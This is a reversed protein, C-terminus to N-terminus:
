SQASGALQPRFGIKPVLYLTAATWALATLMSAFCCAKLAFPAVFELQVRSEGAPVAVMALGEPSERVDSPRGNVLARYWVQYMRPTELWGPQGSQVRARYPIWSDVKVPLKGPDFEALRIRAFPLLNDARPRHDSPFFRVTIKLPVPGSTWLSLRRSHRGGIGFSASEGSGPLLYERFFGDGTFQLIGNPVGPGRFEFEALYRRGPLLTLPSRSVLAAGAYSLNDVEFEVAAPAGRARGSSERDLEITDGNAVVVAGTSPSLIRNELAPDAVGHTFYAPLKPFVVYSYRSLALNELRLMTEASEPPRLHHASGAAFKSAEVMSWACAGALLLIAWRRAGARRAILDELAVATGFLLAMALLLYLRSMPWTGTTNRVIGPIASWRAFALGPIPALLLAVVAAAVVLIRFEAAKTRRWSWLCFGLLAWLAYGLQFDSLERGLASLPLLVAPFVERLFHVVIDPSSSQFTASGVGAAPPFFLVSVIPYAAILGFIAAGWTVRRWGARDPRRVVLRVTVAATAFLTAWLAIPSHAWWTAGLAGGMLITAALDDERFLRVVGSFVLPLLPLTMWSMYLDGNYVVGLVGPCSVYLIALGCACWRSRRLVSALGLYAALLGALAQLSLLLNQIAFVGLARWTLADVLVGLYQFAPAIRSPSYAGNFQFESQGVFVPFVGAHVQALTDAAVTAYWTADPAGHQMIQFFPHLLAIWASGLAIWRLNESRAGGSRRALFWQASVYLALTSGCYFRVVWLGRESRLGPASPPLFRPGILAFGGAILVCGLLLDIRWKVALKVTAAIGTRIAAALSLLLSAVAARNRWIAMSGIWIPVFLYFIRPPNAILLAAIAVTVAVGLQVGLRSFWRPPGGPGPRGTAGPALLVAGLAIGYVLPSLAGRLFLFQALALSSVLTLTEGVVALRLLQVKGPNQDAAM